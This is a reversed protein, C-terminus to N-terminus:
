SASAWTPFVNRVPARSSAGYGLHQYVVRWAVIVLGYSVLSALRSRRTGEDFFLAYALLYAAGTLAAEGAALGAALLAPALWAALTSKSRRFRDHAIVALMAFVLSITLRGNAIWSM